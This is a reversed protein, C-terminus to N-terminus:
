RNTDILLQLHDQMKTSLYKKMIDFNVHRGYVETDIFAMKDDKCFPVNFARNCDGLGAEKLVTFLAELRKLSMISGEWRKYNEKKKFINMDEAVLIFYKRQCRISPEPQIPLPYIWKKPVKFYNEYHHKKIVKSAAAAGRIRDMLKNWEQPCSMDDTFLKIYYGKLKSHKSIVMNSFPRRSPKKFGAARMTESSQSVRQSFLADLKSRIPLERPLFYPSLKEWVKIDIDPHREYNDNAFLHNASLCSFLLLFNLNLLFKVFKLM